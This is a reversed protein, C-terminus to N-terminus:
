TAMRSHVLPDQFPLSIGKYRYESNSIPTFLTAQSQSCYISVMKDNCAKKKVVKKTYSAPVDLSKFEVHFGWWFCLIQTQFVQFM